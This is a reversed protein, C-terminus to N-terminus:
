GEGALIRRLSALKSRTSGNLIKDGIRVVLGGLIQPDVKSNLFVKKGIVQSLQQAIQEVEQASLDVVTTVEGREIGQHADVLRHFESAIQEIAWLRDRTILYYVLNLVLPSIGSFGEAVLRMKVVLGVKPNQLIAALEPDKLASLVVDLDALWKDLGNKERAIDFIAQAYRKAAVWRPM